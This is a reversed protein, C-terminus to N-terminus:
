KRRETAKSKYIYPMRANKSALPLLSHDGRVEKGEEKDWNGGSPRIPFNEKQRWEL